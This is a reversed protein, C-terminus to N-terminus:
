FGETCASQQEACAGCYVPAGVCEDSTKYRSNTVCRMCEVASPDACISVGGDGLTANCVNAVCATIADYSAQAGPSAEARCTAECSTGGDAGCFALCQSFAACEALAALDPSGFDYSVEKDGDCGLAGLALFLGLLLPRM